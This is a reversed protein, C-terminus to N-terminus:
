AFLDLCQIRLADLFIALDEPSCDLDTNATIMGADLEKFLFDIVKQKNSDTM